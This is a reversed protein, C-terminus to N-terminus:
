NVMMNMLFGGTYIKRNLTIVYEIYLGRDLMHKVVDQKPRSQCGRYRKLGLSIGDLVFWEM